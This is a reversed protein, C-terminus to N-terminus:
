RIVFQDRRVEEKKIRELAKKRRESTKTRSLFARQSKTERESARGSIKRKGVVELQSEDEEEEEEEDSRGGIERRWDKRSSNKNRIGESLSEMERVNEAHAISKKERRMRKVEKELKRM